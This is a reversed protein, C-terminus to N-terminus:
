MGSRSAKVSMREGQGHQEGTHQHQAQQDGQCGGPEGHPAVKAHIGLVQMPTSTFPSTHLTLHSTHLLHMLPFSGLLFGLRFEVVVHRERCRVVLQQEDAQRDDGHAEHEHGPTAIAIRVGEILDAMKLARRMVMAGM